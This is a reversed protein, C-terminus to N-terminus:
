EFMWKAAHAGRQCYLPWVRPRIGLVESIYCQWRLDENLSRTQRHLCSGRATITAIETSPVVVAWGVSQGVSRTRRAFM